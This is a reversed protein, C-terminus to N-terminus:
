TLGTTALGRFHALLDSDADVAHEAVKRGRDLLIVRDCLQQVDDLLHTALVVATEGPLARLLTRLQETHLPDLGATPEDLVLIRPEHLLAQALGLRQLMGASLRGALRDAVDGLGTRQLASDVARGLPAGALGRLRGAWALNERVTLEGYAPAQQPLFGLHRRPDVRDDHLDHGLVRVSGADPVLVGALLQMLTSKGAGNIGLLGLRDGGRLELDVADLRRQAPRGYTLQRARLVPEM